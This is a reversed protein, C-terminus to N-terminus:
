QDSRSDSRQRVEHLLSLCAMRILLGNTVQDLIVSQRGDAVEARDVADRFEAWTEFRRALVGATTEGIDRIGLAYIFRSLEVERRAEISALLNAVSKEGYGEREQLAAKHKALTFIDAPEKVWGEDFRGRLSASLIFLPKGQLYSEALKEIRRRQAAREEDNLEDDSGLLSDNCLDSTPPSCTELNLPSVPRRPPM